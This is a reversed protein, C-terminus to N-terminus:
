TFVGQVPSGVAELDWVCVKGDRGGSIVLPRVAVSLALSTISNDHAPIAALLEGRAMNWVRLVGDTGASVAGAFRTFVTESPPPAPIVVVANITGRHGALSHLLAGSDVDWVRLRGDFGGSVARMRQAKAKPCAWSADVSAYVASISSRSPARRVPEHGEEEEEDDEDAAHNSDTEPGGPADVPLDDEPMCIAAVCFCGSTHHMTQLHVFTAMDYVHIMEDSGCTIIVSKLTSRHATQAVCICVGLVVSGEDHRGLVALESEADGGEFAWVHVNSGSGAVVISPLLPGANLVAEADKSEKKNLFVKNRKKVGKMGEYMAVCNVVSPYSCDFLTEGTLLDKLLLRGQVADRTGRNTTDSRSRECQATTGVAVLPGVRLDKPPNSFCVAVKPRSAGRDDIVKVLRGTECDIISISGGSSVACAALRMRFETFDDSLIAAYDEVVAVASIWCRSELDVVKRFTRFRPNIKVRMANDGAM